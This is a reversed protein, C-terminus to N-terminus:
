YDASMGERSPAPAGVRSVHGEVKIGNSTIRGEEKIGNSTTQQCARGAQRQHEWEVSM